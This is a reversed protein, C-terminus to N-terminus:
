PIPGFVITGTTGPEEGGGALVAATIGGAVLVGAGTWVVWRNERLFSGSGSEATEGGTSGQPDLLM